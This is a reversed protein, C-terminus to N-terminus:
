KKSFLCNCSYWYVYLGIILSSRRPEDLALIPEKRGV